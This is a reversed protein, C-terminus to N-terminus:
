GRKRTGRPASVKPTPMSDASGAFKGQGRLDPPLVSHIREWAGLEIWRQLRRWCTMGSGYGMERPLQEWPLGTKLIFLIGTLVARDSKRPRGTDPRPDMEALLPEIREWLDLPLLDKAMAGSHM